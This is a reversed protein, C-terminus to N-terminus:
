CVAGLPLRNCGVKPSIEPPALSREHTKLTSPIFVDISNVFCVRDYPVVGGPLTAVRRESAVACVLHLPLARVKLGSLVM